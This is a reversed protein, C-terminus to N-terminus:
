NSPGGEHSGDVCQVIHGCWVERIANRGHETKVSFAFSVALLVVGTLVACCGIDAARQVVKRKYHDDCLRTIDGIWLFLRRTPEQCVLCLTGPVLWILSVALRNELVTREGGDGVTLFVTLATLATAVVIINLSKALGAIKVM